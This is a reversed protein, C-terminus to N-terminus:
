HNRLTFLNRLSFLKRLNGLTLEAITLLTERPGYRLSFPLRRLFSRIIFTHRSHKPAERRAAGIGFSGSTRVIERLDEVGAAEVGPGGAPPLGTCSPALGLDAVLLDTLLRHWRLLGARRLLVAFEDPDYHGDLVTLARTLDCLQKCGIGAGMAHKFIHGSLLLLEGCPTGPAPLRSQPLHVDYYRPHFEVTVGDRAFVAAGDSAIRAVRVLSRAQAFEPCYLDIDGAQRFAPAAYYKAAESGKMVRPHVGAGRLEALIQTEVRDHRAAARELAIRWVDLHAQQEVPCQDEPLHAIGRLLIGMVSQVRATQLIEEWGAESPPTELRLDQEWLGARLLALFIEWTRDQGNDDHRM